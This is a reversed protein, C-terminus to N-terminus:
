VTTVAIRSGRPQCIAAMTETVEATTLGPTRGGREHIAERALDNMSLIGVVLGDDEVVPVRRIENKRMVDEASSVDAVLTKVRAGTDRRISEAAAEIRAQDRSCIVLHCGERALGLASAYGLGRSAAMVIARKGKLRFDM